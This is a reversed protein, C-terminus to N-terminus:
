HDALVVAVSQRVLVKDMKALLQANKETTWPEFETSRVACTGLEFLEAMQLKGRREVDFTQFVGRLM